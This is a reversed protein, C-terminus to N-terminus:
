HLSPLFFIKRSFRVELKDSSGEETFLELSEPKSREAAGVRWCWGVHLPELGLFTSVWSLALDEIDLFHCHGGGSSRSLEPAYM